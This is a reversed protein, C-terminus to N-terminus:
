MRKVQENRSWVCMSVPSTILDSSMIWWFRWFVLKSRHSKQKIKEGWTSRCWWWLWCLHQESESNVERWWQDDASSTFNSIKHDRLDTMNWSRFLEVHIYIACRTSSAALSQFMVFSSLEAQHDGETLSSNHRDSHAACQKCWNICEVDSWLRDLRSSVENEVCKWIMEHKGFVIYRMFKMLKEHDNCRFHHDYEDDAALSTATTTSWGLWTSTSEICFGM